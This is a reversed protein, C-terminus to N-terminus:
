AAGLKRLINSSSYGSRMPALYVRGGYSEVFAGGVVDEKRYDAGKILVDPRVAKILALPTAEEFVTVFDVAQLGALVASRAEQDNVPRTPGKLSRVSADSNLGVVLVEAQARDEELYEM